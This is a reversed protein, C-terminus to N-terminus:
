LLTASASPAVCFPIPRDNDMAQVVQSAEGLGDIGYTVQDGEKLFSAPKQAMGVGAPTGTCIVDGSLLTMFQSIYSILDPVSFIMNKTNGQQRLEGNVKLWLNLNHPDIEDATALFPGFPAFSDHSKGKIWQGKRELQFSRESIDNTLAYGAVHGMAESVPVNRAPKGILVALEVEYDLKSSNEPMLIPEEVGSMASTSKYFLIPEKPPKAGIEEVHDLYNLGVAIIKSSRHFPTCLQYPDEVEVMLEKNFKTWERLRAIGDTAFFREDFDEGFFSVDLLDGRQNVIATKTEEASNNRYRCLKM